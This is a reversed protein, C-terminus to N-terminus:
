IVIHLMKLFHPIVLHIGLCRTCYFMWGIIHALINVSAKHVIAGFHFPCIDLSLLTSLNHYLCVLAHEKVFSFFWSSVFAVAHIVRVSMIVLSLHWVAFFGNQTSAM